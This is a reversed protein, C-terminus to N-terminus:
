GSKITLDDMIGFIENSDEFYFANFRKEKAVSTITIHKRKQASLKKIEPITSFPYLVTRGDKLRIAM